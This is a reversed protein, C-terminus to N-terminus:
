EEPKDLRANEAQRAARDQELRDRQKEARTRGHLIRNQEAEAKRAQAARQKRVRSLNIIEAM